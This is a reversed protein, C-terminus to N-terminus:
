WELTENVQERSESCTVIDDVCMITWIHRIKDIMKNLLM